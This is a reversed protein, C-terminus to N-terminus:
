RNDIKVSPSIILLCLKWHCSEIVYIYLAEWYVIKKNWIGQYDCTFIICHPLLIWFYFQRKHVSNIPYTVVHTSTIQCQIETNTQLLGMCIGHKEEASFKLPLRLQRSKIIHSSYALMTKWLGCCIRLISPDVCMFNIENM